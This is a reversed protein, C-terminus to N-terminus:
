PVGGMQALMTWESGDVGLVSHLPMGKGQGGLVVGQMATFHISSMGGAEM